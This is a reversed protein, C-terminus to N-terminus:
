TLGGASTRNKTQDIGDFHLELLNLREDIWSPSFDDPPNPDVALDVAHELQEIEAIFEPWRNAKSRGSTLATHWRLEHTNMTRERSWQWEVLDWSGRPSTDTSATRGLTEFASAILALSVGASAVILFIIM